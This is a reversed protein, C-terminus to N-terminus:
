CFPSLSFFALFAWLFVCLLFADFDECNTMTVALKVDDGTSLERPRDKCVFVSLSLSLFLLLAVVASSGSHLTAKLSLSLSVGYVCLGSGIACKFYEMVM